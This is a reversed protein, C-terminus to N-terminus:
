AQAERVRDLEAEAEALLEEVEDDYLGEVFAAAHTQHRGQYVAPVEGPTRATLVAWALPLSLGYAPVERDLEERTGPHEGALAILVEALRREEQTEKMEEGNANM